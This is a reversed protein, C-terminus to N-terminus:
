LSPLLSIGSFTSITYFLMGGPSVSPLEMSRISEYMAGGQEGNVGKDVPFGLISIETETARDNHALPIISLSGIFADDLKIIGLDSLRDGGELWHRPVCAQAGFARLCQRGGYGVCAVVSIVNGLNHRHDFLNHGATLVVDPTIVSGTGTAWVHGSSNPSAFCMFLKVIAVFYTLEKTLLLFIFPLECRRTGGDEHEKPDVVFRDDDAFAAELSPELPIAHPPPPLDPDTDLHWTILDVWKRADM